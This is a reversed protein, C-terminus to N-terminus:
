GRRSKDMSIGHNLYVLWHVLTNKLHSVKHVMPRAPCRRHWACRRRRKRSRRGKRPAASRRQRFGRFQQPPHRPQSFGANYPSIFIKHPSKHNFKSKSVITFRSKIMISNTRVHSFIPFDELNRFTLPSNRNEWQNM